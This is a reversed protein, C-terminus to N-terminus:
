SSLSSERRPCLNNRKMVADPGATPAMSGGRQGPRPNFTDPGRPQAAWNTYHTSYSRSLWSSHKMERCPCSIQRGEVTPGVWVRIWHAGSPRKAICYKTVCNHCIKSSSKHCMYSFRSLCVHNFNEMFLRSWLASAVPKEASFFNWCEM